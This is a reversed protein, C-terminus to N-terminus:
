AIIKHTIYWTTGNSVITFTDYQADASAFNASGNITESANGDVTIAAADSTAKVFTYELGTSVAAAPLTLTMTSTNSVVVIGAQAVTLTANGQGLATINRVSSLHAALVKDTHGTSVDNVVVEDSQSITGSINTLGAFQGKVAM